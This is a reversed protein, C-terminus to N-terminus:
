PAQEVTAPRPNSGMQFGILYSLYVIAVALAGLVAMQVRTLKM